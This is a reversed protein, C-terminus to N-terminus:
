SHTLFLQYTGQEFYGDEIFSEVDEDSCGHEIACQHFRAEAEKNGDEDDTFSTIGLLDDDVMEIVNVTNIKAM